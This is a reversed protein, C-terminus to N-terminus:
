EDARGEGLHDVAPVAHALPQDRRDLAAVGVGHRRDRGEDRQQDEDRRQQLVDDNRQEVGPDPHASMDTGLWSSVLVAAISPPPPLPPRLVISSVWTGPRARTTQRRNRRCFRDSSPKATRARSTNRAKTPM